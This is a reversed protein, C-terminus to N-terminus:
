FNSNWGCYDYKLLRQDNKTEINRDYELLGATELNGHYGKQYVPPSDPVSPDPYSFELLGTTLNVQYGNCEMFDQALEGYELQIVGITEPVREALAAYSEFDQEQTTEIVLGSREGTDLLYNGTALEYYIKRGIEM